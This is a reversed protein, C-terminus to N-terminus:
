LNGGAFSKKKVANSLGSIMRSLENLKKYLEDYDEPKIFQQKLSIKLLAVCEHVSARAIRLFQIYDKQHYRGSGEAINTVISISARRLQDVLGFREEKPFVKTLSYVEEVFELSKHYVELKEFNFM